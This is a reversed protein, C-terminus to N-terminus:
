IRPFIGQPTPLNIGPVLHASQNLFITKREELKVNLQDLLKNMSDPMFPLLMIAIYRITEILIYLVQNMREINTKKLSWPAEVDIFSNADSALAIIIDLAQNLKITNMSEKYQETRMELSALINQAYLEQINVEPVKGGTTKNIFSLTRQALNGINNALESNIRNIAASKSFNGDQGFIVERMLFYRTQDLGFEEVLDSPKVTNGLSKSMKEGDVTWWGHAFIKKPCELGAAILFAPWYIAHFRLIDKGVIHLNAPWCKKFLDGEPYELSSLYNTLADLWVYMVHQEDQPIKIGWKFSTRSVSLDVLGRKIFSIVENFRSEPQIFNPHEQYFELLKDQFKSLAFFYSPEEIWEVPAGTPAKGDILDKELFFAEDRVSYWGSYKGLYIYEKELLNNWLAIAAKKHREETTRIFDDNSLNLLSSLDRFRKSVEDVFEQPEKNLAHAAKEVKQGHEDTGTIFRVNYDNLRMFRAIVDAAISTYAHGIHPSDNVYYIPTTIYFSNSMIM